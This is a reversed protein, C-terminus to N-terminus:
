FLMKNQKQNIFFRKVLAKVHKTTLYHFPTRNQFSHIIKVNKQKKKLDLHHNRLCSLRLRIGYNNRIVGNNYQAESQASSHLKLLSYKIYLIRYLLSYSIYMIYAVACHSPDSSQAIIGLFMSIIVVHSGKCPM